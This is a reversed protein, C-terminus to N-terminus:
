GYILFVTFLIVVIYQIINELNCHTKVFFRLKQTLTAIVRKLKKYKGTFEKYKKYPGYLVRFMYFFNQTTLVINQVITPKSM